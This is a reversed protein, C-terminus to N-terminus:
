PLSQPKRRAMETVVRVRKTGASIIAGGLTRRIKPSDHRCIAADLAELEADGPAHPRDGAERILRALLRLRIEVPEAAFASRDLAGSPDRAALIREVIVDIAQNARGLKRAVDALRWQDLGEAALQTLLSRLRPRLFREDENTPDEIFPVHAAALTARLDARSVSLFPRALVVAGRRRAPVMGALGALGSGRCLRMLVTEAQDDLTHATVVSDAGVRVAEAELLRYRAERAAELLRTMPKEGQWRRVSVCLGRARAEREVFRAEDAAESRLGHDITVVHIPPVAVRRRWLAVVHMLAMSDSGGSVALVLGRASLLPAFLRDADEETLGSGPEAGPM